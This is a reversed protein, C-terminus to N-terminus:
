RAERASHVPPREALAALLAAEVRPLSEAELKRGRDDTVYFVDLALAKATAITAFSIDLGLRALADAIRWALGPRDPARVDIVTATASAEQDFRVSPGRAARGWPARQSRPTRAMWREVADAVDLRGAVAERLSAEIRARREPKLPQQGSLESLRFSDIAVGDARGFLDVSLINAGNATLAGAVRAFLGPRDDAVITLETGHGGALDLWELALPAGGRAAALRFHRELHDADSTRLYRQPMLALHHEVEAEPHSECLREVAKARAAQRPADADPHGALHQRTRDYLEWLLTAKWENWIGPAVGRHDAYTLLLLLNLREATGVREAFAAILAPESLDRQQSVRSMELHAEVLFVVDAAQATSLGLRECVRPALKAGREVHGGGRGKGIDHLLLGLYLPAADEIEDFVRGLARSAPNVGAAVEDLAEIARLTHEDVTYRHFFDHQVLFTIRGFEPLYRGLFGTEHMERL